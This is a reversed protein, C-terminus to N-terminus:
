FRHRATGLHNLSAMDAAVQELRVNPRPTKTPEAVVAGLASGDGSLIAKAQAASVLAWARRLTEPDMGITRSAANIGFRDAIPVGANAMAKTASISVAPAIPAQLKKELTAPL